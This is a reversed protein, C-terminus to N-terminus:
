EPRSCTECLHAQDGRVESGHRNCHEPSIEVASWMKQMKTTKGDHGGDYSLATRAVCGSQQRKGANKM